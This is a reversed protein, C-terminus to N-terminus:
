SLRTLHTVVRALAAALVEFTADYAEPRARIVVDTPPAAPLLQTRVLERLRRKLRNRDVASEAYRPVVIGVRVHGCPSALIRVDLYSTRIRKGERAVKQIEV